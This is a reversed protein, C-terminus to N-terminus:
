QQFFEDFDFAINLRINLIILTQKIYFIHANSFDHKRIQCTNYYFPAFFSIKKDCFFNRNKKASHFIIGLNLDDFDPCFIYPKAGKQFTM